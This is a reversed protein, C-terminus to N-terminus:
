FKKWAEKFARIWIRMFIQFVVFLLVDGVLVAIGTIIYERAGM